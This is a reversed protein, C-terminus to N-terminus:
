TTEALYRMSGINKPNEEICFHETVVSAESERSREGFSFTQKVIATLLQWTVMRWDSSYIFQKIKNDAIGTSAMWDRYQEIGLLM